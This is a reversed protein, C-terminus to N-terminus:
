DKKPSHSTPRESNSVNGRVRDFARDFAGEREDAEVERAMEKFKLQEPDDTKLAPKRAMSRM